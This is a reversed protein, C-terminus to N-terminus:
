TSRHGKRTRLARLTLGPLILLCRGYRAALRTPNGLLRWLWEVALKRAWVPARTQAGSVFDLGAGISLFGCESLVAQAHAAFCEQRPAGLALFVMRAGSSEIAAIVRDAETGSPDFGMSPAHCLVIRLGTHQACLAAAANDLSTQTGGVLAVPVDLYAAIEALPSILESGPVLSVTEQGALRSLWVIPNGDAIVHTHAAYAARFAPDYTLKVVHDLNLTAVSFGREEELHRRISSMLAARTPITVTVPAAGTQQTVWNMVPM